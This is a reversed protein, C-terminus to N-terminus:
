QSIRAKPEKTTALYKDRCGQCADGPEGVENWDCLYCFRQVKALTIKQGNGNYHPDDAYILTRIPVEYGDSSEPAVRELNGGMFFDKSAPALEAKEMTQTTGPIAITGHSGDESLTVATGCTILVRSRDLAETLPSAAGIWFVYGSKLLPSIPLIMFATANEFEMRTFDAIDNPSAGRYGAGFVNDLLHYIYEQVKVEALSSSLSNVNGYRVKPWECVPLAPDYIVEFYRDFDHVTPLIPMLASRRM